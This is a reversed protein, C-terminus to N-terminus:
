EDEDEEEDEDEIPQPNRSAWDAQAAQEAQRKAQARAEDAATWPNRRERTQKLADALPVPKNM